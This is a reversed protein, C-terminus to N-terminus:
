RRQAYHTMTRYDMQLNCTRQYAAKVAEANIEDFKKRVLNISATIEIITSAKALAGIMPTNVVPVGDHYLGLEESVASANIFFINVTNNFTCARYKDINSTNLILLGGPKLKDQIYAAQCLAEDIIIICDAQRIKSVTRVRQDSIRLYSEVPAGRREAGFSPAVTVGKCGCQYAIEGAMKAATVAGQGGRGLWIIEEVM